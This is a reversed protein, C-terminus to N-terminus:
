VAGFRIPQGPDTFQKLAPARASVPASGISAPVHGRLGRPLPQGLLYRNLKGFLPTPKLITRQLLNRISGDRYIELFM